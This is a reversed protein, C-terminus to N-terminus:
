ENLQMWILRGSENFFETGCVNRALVVRNALIDTVNLFYDPALTKIEKSYLRFVRGYQNSRYVMIYFDLPEIQNLMSLFMLKGEEQLLKALRVNLSVQGIEFWNLNTNIFKMTQARATFFIMSAKNTELIEGKYNYYQYANERIIGGYYEIPGYRGDLVVHGDVDILGYKGNPFRVALYLSSNQITSPEVVMSEAFTQMNMVCTSSDLFDRYNNAFYYRSEFNATNQQFISIYPVYYGDKPMGGQTAMTILEKELYLACMLVFAFNAGVTIWKRKRYLDLIPPLILIVMFFGYISLRAAILDDFRLFFFFSIGIIFTNLYREPIAERALLKEYHYLVLIIIFLRPISKLDWFGYQVTTSNIYMAVRSLFPIKSVLVAVQAIPLLSFVLSTLVVLSLRKKNWKIQDTLLFVLFFLASIHFFTLSIIIILKTKRKWNFSVNYLLYYGVILVLGQRLASISWVLFFFSYYVLYALSVSKVNKNIWLYVLIMITIALFAIFFEYRLNLFRFPFMLLKFGVEKDGTSALVNLISSGSTRYYLYSYSFYDTGSGFRLIAILGFAASCIIGKIRNGVKLPHMLLPVLFVLYYM